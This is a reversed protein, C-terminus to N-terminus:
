LMSHNLTKSYDNQMIGMLVINEPLKLSFVVDTSEPICRTSLTMTIPGTTPAVHIVGDFIPNNAQTIVESVEWNQHYTTVNFRQKLM